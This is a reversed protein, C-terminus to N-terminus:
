FCSMCVSFPTERRARLCVPRRSQVYGVGNQWLCSSSFQCSTSIVMLEKCPFHGDWRSFGANAGVSFAQHTQEPPQVVPVDATVNRSVEGGGRREKKKCGSYSQDSDPAYLGARCINMHHFLQCKIDFHTCHPALIRADRQCTQGQSYHPSFIGRASRGVGTFIIDEFVRGGFFSFFGQFESAGRCTQNLLAM